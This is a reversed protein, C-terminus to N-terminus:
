GAHCGRAKVVQSVEEGALQDGLAFGGGVNAVLHAWELM